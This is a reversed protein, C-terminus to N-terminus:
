PIHYKIMALHMWAGFKLNRVCFYLHYAGSVIIRFVLDSTVSFPIHWEQMWLHMFVGFKPNM